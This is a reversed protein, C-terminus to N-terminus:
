LYVQLPSLIWSCSLALGYLQLRYQVGRTSLAPGPSMQGLIAEHRGVALLVFQDRIDLLLIDLLWVVFLVSVFRHFLLVFWFLLLSLQLPAFLRGVVAIRLIFLPTLLLLLFRGFLALLVPLFVTAARAAGRVARRGAAVYFSVLPFVRLIVFSAGFLAFMGFSLM